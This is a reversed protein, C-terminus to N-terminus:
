EGSIKWDVSEDLRTRVLRAWRGAVRRVDAWNTVPSSPGFSTVRDIARRDMARALTAHSLSDRIEIVLTAEGVRRLFIDSRGTRQSPVFSVVDLLGGWLTLVEPGEDDVLEFRQSEALEERFASAVIEILRAEQAESVPFARGGSRTASGGGRVPRFEVGAGELRVKTYGSLDFDPRLWAASAQSNEVERLGDFSEGAGLQPPGPSACAAFLAAAALAVLTQNPHAM